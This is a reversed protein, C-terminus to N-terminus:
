KQKKINGDFLFGLQFNLYIGRYMGPFYSEEENLNNFIKQFPAKGSIKYGSTLGYKLVAHKGLNKWICAEIELGLYQNEELITESFTGFVPDNIYNIRLRDQSFGIPLGLAITILTKDKTKSFPIFQPTVYVYLSRSEFEARTIANSTSTGYTTNYYIDGIDFNRGLGVKVGWGKNTADLQYFSGFIPANINSILHLGYLNKDQKQNLIQSFGLEAFILCGLLLLAKKM